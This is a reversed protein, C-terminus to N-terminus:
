KRPKALIAKIDDVDQAVSDRNIARTEEMNRMFEPIYMKPQKRPAKRQADKTNQWALVELIFIAKNM